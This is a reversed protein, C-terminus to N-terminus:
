NSEPMFAYTSASRPASCGNTTAPMSPESPLFKSGANSDTNFIPFAGAVVFPTFGPFSEHRAKVAFGDFGLDSHYVLDTARLVPQRLPRGSVDFREVRSISSSAAISGSRTNPSIEARAASRRTPRSRRVAIAPESGCVPRSATSCIQKWASGPACAPRNRNQDANYTPSFNPNTVDSADYPRGTNIANFNPDGNDNGTPFFDGEYRARFDGSFRIRQAWEPYAGPSAWNEKEAKAMVERKIEERLQQKVMEPVYTVHKTGPPSAADAATAGAKPAKRRPPPTVCPRARCLGRRRGAQDAGGGARREARGRKVLLNVLNITSNSSPPANRFWRGSPMRARAM